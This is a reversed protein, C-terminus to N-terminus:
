SIIVWFPESQGVLVDGRKRIVFAEVLHVGRYKLEEWRSNDKEPPYFEGRLCNANFAAEDTNTVRWEVTFEDKNFPLGMGTFAHFNIWCGPPLPDLNTIPQILPGFKSRHLNVKIQVPLDGVRRWKPREMYPLTYFRRPIAHAGFQRVAEVLDGAFLAATAVSSKLLAVASKGISRGEELVVSKAFDEGFVRRWKGISENRDLEAFADDIWERYTNIKNRFNEYQEDTWGDAFNESPLFPNTVAPKTPRLRLWDDLRGFMTKLATPTDAFAESDKDGAGEVRRDDGAHKTGDM